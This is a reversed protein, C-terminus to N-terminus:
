PLSHGDADNDIDIASASDVSGFIYWDTGDCYIEFMDGITAAGDSSDIAVVSTANTVEIHAGNVLIHGNIDVANDGTTIAFDKTAENHSAVSLIFKYNFFGLIVLVM